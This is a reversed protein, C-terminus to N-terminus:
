DVSLVETLIQEASSVIVNAGADKLEKEPRFGWLVGITRKAGLNKGTEIDTSTDGIFAVEDASVSFGKLIDLAARPDPKLPVGDRGGLVVDFIDGFFHKVVSKTAFDPKNSLVAIKVGNSKLSALLERIGPFADTLYTPNADYAAKYEELIASFSEEDYAGRATLARKVLLKAGNGAFYNCEEATVTDIGHNQFTKNVFYAISNITDLLTGDLDFICCKIM